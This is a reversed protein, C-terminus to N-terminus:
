QSSGVITRGIYRIADARKGLGHPTGFEFRDASRGMRRLAVRADEPTGALAFKDLLADSISDGAKPDGAKFRATFATLSEQEEGDLTPDLHGVVDLYKAVESRALARAKNRDQDIVSVAGLVIRVEPNDIIRRAREALAPNASGGLKVGTVGLRGAMQLLKPGFGGLFIPPVKDSGFRERIHLVTQELQALTAPKAGIQDMFAGRVLGISSQGPLQQELAIAHTAIVEPHQMGVPVGMPGIYPVPGDKLLDASAHLVAYPPLDGLDGYVSFSDFDYEDAAKAAQRVDEISQGPLGIGVEIGLESM